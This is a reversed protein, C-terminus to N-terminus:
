RSLVTYNGSHEVIRGDPWEMKIYGARSELIECNMLFNKMGFYQDLQVVSSYSKQTQFSGLMGRYFAGGSIVLPLLLVALLVLSAKKSLAFTAYSIVFGLGSVGVFTGVAVVPHFPLQNLLLSHALSLAGVVAGFTM